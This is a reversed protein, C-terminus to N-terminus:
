LKVGGLTSTGAGMGWGQYNRIKLKGEVSAKRAIQKSLSIKACPKVGFIGSMAGIASM